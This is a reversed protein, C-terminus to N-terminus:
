LEGFNTDNVVEGFGDDGFLKLSHRTVRERFTKRAMLKAQAEAPLDTINIVNKIILTDIIDELVRVFDADLREFEQRQVAPPPAGVFALVEAHEDPLFENHAPSPHRHLSDIRGDLGRSVYPM